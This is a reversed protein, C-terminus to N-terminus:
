PSARHRRFGKLLMLPLRFIVSWPMLRWAAWVDEPRVCLTTPMSGMVKGKIILREGEREISKVEMMELGERTFMKM